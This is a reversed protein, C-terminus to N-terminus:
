HGVGTLPTHPSNIVISALARLSMMGRWSAFSWGTHAESAARCCSGAEEAGILRVCRQFGQSVKRAGAPAPQFVRMQQDAPMASYIPAVLVKRSGEPLRAAREKVLREMAEIEEQGTLFVLVDGDEDELHIQFM